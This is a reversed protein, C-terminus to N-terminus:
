INLYKGKKMLMKGDVFITPNKIIGDCHVKSSFPANTEEPYPNGVAIHVGPFKEDQLIVGILKKLFINTGLAFEGIRSSNKDTKVYNKFEKELKKNKCSIKIIRGNKIKVKIPTEELIGYKTTFYDGLVGDIIAIGNIEKPYTWVEGGPLNAGQQPRKRYDGNSNIWKYKSIFKAIINTGKDTKVVIEKANKVIDYIKKSFKWLKKHNVCMGTKMIEKTISPMNIHRGYKIGILRIPRRITYNENGIKEAAYLSINAQKIACEIEIPLKQLPRKGFDELIFFKIKNTIKRAEKEFAKGIELTKKDTIIVIIEGKKLDLCENLVQKAGQQITGM